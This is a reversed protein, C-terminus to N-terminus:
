PTPSSWTEASLAKDLETASAALIVNSPGLLSQLELARRPSDLACVVDIPM